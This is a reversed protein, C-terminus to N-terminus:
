VPESNQAAELSQAPEYCTRPELCSPLQAAPEQCTRLELCSTFEPCSRLEPCSTGLLNPTRPLKLLLARLLQNKTPEFSKPQNQARPLKSPLNKSAELSWAAPEQYTQPYTGPLKKTPLKLRALATYVQCFQIPSKSSQLTTQPRALATHV